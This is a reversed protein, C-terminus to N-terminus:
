ATPAPTCYRRGTPGARSSTATFGSGLSSSSFHTAWKVRPMAKQYGRRRYNPHLALDAGSTCLFVEEGIKIRVPMTHHCGVIEDGSEALTISSMGHPNDRFKWRWYDLPSYELDLRPWGDFVSQLLKVIRVEDGLLYSRFEYGKKM